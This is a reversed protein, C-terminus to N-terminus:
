SSPDEADRAAAAPAEGSSGDPRSDASAPAAPTADDDAARSDPASSSPPPTERFRLVARENQLDDEIALTLPHAGGFVRRAIREIEVLTAVAERLDDLTADADRYLAMAYLWRMKLTLEHSDGLVRGAVPITKRLVPKAEEFRELGVLSTAYNNAAQHRSVSLAVM